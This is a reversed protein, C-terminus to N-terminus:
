APSGKPRHQQGSRLRNLLRRRRTTSLLPLGAGALLLSGGITALDAASVATLDVAKTRSLRFSVAPVIVGAGKVQVQYDGQPLNDLTIAHGPGLPIERVAHSPLTLVAERGARGGFLADHATITLSHFYGAFTPTPQERPSFRQVGAYVINTGALLVAQVAYKMDHSALTANRYVPQVCDLWSTRAAPVNVQRGASSRLSVRSIRRPDIVRGRQDTFRPRVPCQVTFAATITYSARMPLGSVQSRFADDPDREGAWRTFRYRRSRTAIATDVLTLTHRRFNHQEAYSVQGAANTVLSTGDLTFVVGPLAPLTRITLTVPWSLGRATVAWAAAPSLQAALLCGLPVTLLTARALRRARGTM